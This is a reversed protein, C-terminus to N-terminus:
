AFELQQLEKGLSKIGALIKEIQKQSPKKIGNVYQSLLTENMGIRKGIAKANIEKYYEFAQPLDITIKIDSLTILPLNKHKRWTNIADLMNVKLEDMTNGTTYVPLNEEYASFGTGTKEVIFSANQM